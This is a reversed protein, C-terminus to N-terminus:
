SASAPSKRRRVLFLSVGFLLVPLAYGRVLSVPDVESIRYARQDRDSEYRTIAVLMPKPRKQFWMIYTPQSVKIKESTHSGSLHFTTTVGSYYGVQIAKRLSGAAAIVEQVVTASEPPPTGREELASVVGQLDENPLVVSYLLPLFTACMFLSSLALLIIAYTPRNSKFVLLGGFHIPPSRLSCVVSKSRACFAPRQPKAYLRSSSFRYNDYCRWKM